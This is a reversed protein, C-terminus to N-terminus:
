YELVFKFEERSLDTRPLPFFNEMFYVEGTRQTYESMTVNNAEPSNITITQGTENRFPLTLDLSTDGQGTIINNRYPGMYEALYFTNASLDVEHVIASFTVENQSNVQTLTTNVTVNGIDDSVVAIRNDFVDPSSGSFSPSRVIGVAGYTNTFGIKTNDDATIYAYLSFNKCMLEDVLNYSHGGDPSIRPRIVARIDTRNDDEPNFDYIPDIVEAVANNYEQGQNLMTISVIAGNVIVPIGVANYGDGKVQIKPLIRVSANSALNSLVADKTAAYTGGSTFASFGSGNVDNALFRDVKLSFNDDDIVKVYASALTELEVMGGVNRFTIRQGDVLGHDTSTIIVPSTQSANEISGVKEGYILENSLKIEVNGTNTNFFYYEIEFLNAVGNPNLTYLYQGVYYNSIPSWTGNPDAFVTGDLFPTAILWGNVTTYGQNEEPNEVVINSVLGGTSAPPNSDFTGIIPIFGNSSYAEFELTSIAYLFKWVYGDATEYIQNQITQDYNPPNSVAGGNNNELCKYVRYDGTDNDNPGVVAYFRTGTLDAKDDYEEYVEGVQWPYYKIMFHIDDTLVRKGFLTKELFQNKSFQSDDPEFEGISSVFLYYQDTSLSDIFRRTTDSKFSTSLIEPM